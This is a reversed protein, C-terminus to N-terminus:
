SSNSYSRRANRRNKTLQINTHTRKALTWYNGVQWQTQRARRRRRRPRQCPWSPPFRSSIALIRFKAKSWRDATICIGFYLTLPRGAAMEEISKEQVTAFCASVPNMWCQFEWCKKGHQSIFWTLPTSARTKQRRFDTTQTVTHTQLITCPFFCLPACM